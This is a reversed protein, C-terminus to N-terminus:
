LRDFCNADLDFTEIKDRVSEFAKIEISSVGHVDMSYEADAAWAELDQVTPEKDKFGKHNEVLIEKIRALGRLNCAYRTGCM